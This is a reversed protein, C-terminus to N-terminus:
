MWLRVARVIPHTGRHNADQDGGSGDRTGDERRGISLTGDAEAMSTGLTLLAFVSAACIGLWKKKLM